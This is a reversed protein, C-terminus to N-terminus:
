RARTLRQALRREIQRKELDVAQRGSLPPTWWARSLDLERGKIARYKERQKRIAGSLWPTNATAREIFDLSERSHLTHSHLSVGTRFEPMPDKQWQYHVRSKIM